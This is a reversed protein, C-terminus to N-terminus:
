PAGVLTYQPDLTAANRGDAADELEPLPPTRFGADVARQAVKDFRRMATSAAKARTLTAIEAYSHQEIIRLRATEKVVPEFDACTDIFDLLNEITQAEDPLVFPEQSDELANRAVREETLTAVDTVDDPNAETPQVADAVDTADEPGAAAAERSDDLTSSGDATATDAVQPDPHAFRQVVDPASAVPQAIRPAVDSDSAVGPDPAVNPVHAVHSDPAVSPVHAVHSDSAVNPVQAVSPAVLGAIEGSNRESAPMSEAVATRYDTIDEDRQERDRTNRVVAIYETHATGIAKILIGVGHTFALVLLPPIVAILSAGTPTLPTYGLEIGAAVSRAAAEGARYAHYANGFVSIFVVVVALWLFFHKGTASGNIKSLAVIAITAGLIAGDVIAPFIWTLYHPIGAQLALDRQVAFSLVFAGTTIGVAIAIAVILAAILARLQIRAARISLDNM